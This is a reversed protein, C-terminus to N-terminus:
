GVQVWRGYGPNSNDWVYKDTKVGNYVHITLDNPYTIRVVSPRSDQVAYGSPPRYNERISDPLTQYPDVENDM